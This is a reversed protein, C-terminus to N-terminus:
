QQHVSLLESRLEHRCHAFTCGQTFKCFGKKQYRDCTHMKFELRPRASVEKCVGGEELSGLSGSPLCQEDENREVIPEGCRLEDRGHAFVCRDAYKCLGNHAYNKCMRTKFYDQPNQARSRWAEAQVTENIQSRHPDFLHTREKANLVAANLNRLEEQTHSDIHLCLPLVALLSLSLSDFRPTHLTAVIVTNAIRAM